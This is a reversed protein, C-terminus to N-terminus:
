EFDTPDLPTADQLFADICLQKYIVLWTASFYPKRVHEAEFASVQKRLSMVANYAQVISDSPLKDLVARKHSEEASQLTVLVFGFEPDPPPSEIAKRFTLVASRAEESLEDLPTNEDDILDCAFDTYAKRNCIYGKGYRKALEFPNFRFVLLDNIFAVNDDQKKQEAEARLFDRQEPPKFHDDYGKSDFVVASLSYSTKNPIPEGEKLHQFYEIAEFGNNQVAVRVTGNDPAIRKGLKVFFEGKCQNRRYVYIHWHPPKPSGDELTDKDHHIYAFRTAKAIIADRVKADYCILHWVKANVQTYDQM